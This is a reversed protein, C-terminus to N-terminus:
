SRGRSRALTGGALAGLHDDRAAVLPADVARDGLVDLAAMAGAGVPGYIILAPERPPAFLVVVTVVCFAYLGFRWASRTDGRGQTLHLVGLLSLGIMFAFYFPPEPSSEVQSTAKWPFVVAFSSVVGRFSSAEIRIPTQNADLYPGTWAIRSDAIELRPETSSPSFRTIDLGAATFLSTWEPEGTAPRALDASTPTREISLLRGELDLTTTIRGPELLGGSVPLAGVGGGLRRTLRGPSQIYTFWIPWPASALRANWRLQRDSNSGKITQEARTLYGADYDFGAAVDVPIDTFGLDRALDRARITLEEPPVELPVKGLVTTSPTLTLVTTISVAICALLM